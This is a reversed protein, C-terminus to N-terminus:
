DVAAPGRDAREGRESGGDGVQAGAVAPAGLDGGHALEVVDDDAMGALAHLAARVGGAVEGRWCGPAAGCLWGAGASRLCGPLRVPGSRPYVMVLLIRLRCWGAGLCRLLGELM